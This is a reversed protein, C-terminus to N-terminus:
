TWIKKQVLKIGFHHCYVWFMWGCEKKGGSYLPEFRAEAVGAHHSHALQTGSDASSLPVADILIISTSEGDLFGLYRLVPQQHVTVTRLRVPVEHGSHSLFKIMKSLFFTCLVDRGLGDHSSLGIAPAYRLQFLSSLPLSAHYKRPSAPLYQCYRLPLHDQLNRILNQCQTSSWGDNRGRDRVKFAPVMAQWKM